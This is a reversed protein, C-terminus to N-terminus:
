QPRHKHLFAFGGLLTATFSSMLLMDDFHIRYDEANYDVPKRKKVPSVVPILNAIEEDTLVPKEKARELKDFQHCIENGFWKNKVTNNLLTVFSKETDKDFFDINTYIKKFLSELPGKAVIARHKINYFYVNNEISQGAFYREANSKINIIFNNEKANEYLLDLLGRTYEKSKELNKKYEAEISKKEQEDHLSKNINYDEEYQKNTSYCYYNMGVFSGTAIITPYWEHWHKQLTDGFGPTLKAFFISLILLKKM